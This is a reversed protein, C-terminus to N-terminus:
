RDGLIKGLRSLKKEIIGVREWLEQLGKGGSVDEYEKIVSEIDSRFHVIDQYREDKPRTAREFIMRLSFPFTDLTYMKQTDRRVTGARKDIEIGTPCEPESRTWM